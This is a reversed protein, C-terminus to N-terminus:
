RYHIGIPLFAVATMRDGGAQFSPGAIVWSTTGIAYREPSFPSLFPFSGIASRPSTWVVKKLPESRDDLIRVNKGELARQAMLSATWPRTTGLTGAKDISALMPGDDSAGVAYLRGDWRHVGVPRMPGSMQVTRGGQPEIVVLEGSALLGVVLNDDVSTLYGRVSYPGANALGTVAIRRIIAAHQDLFFAEARTEGELQYRVLLYATHQDSSAGVGLVTIDTARAPSFPQPNNYINRLLDVEIFFPAPDGDAYVLALTSSRSPAERVMPFLAKFSLRAHSIPDRDLIRCGKARPSAM